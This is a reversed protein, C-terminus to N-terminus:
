RSAFRQKLKSLAAAASKVDASAKRARAQDTYARNLEAVIDVMAARQEASGSELMAAFKATAQPNNTLHSMMVADQARQVNVTQTMAQAVKAKGEPKAQASMKVLGAAATRMTIWDTLAHDRDSESLKRTPKRTASAAAQGSQPMSLPDASAAGAALDPPPTDGAGGGGGGPLSGDGAWSSDNAASAGGGGSHFAGVLKDWGALIFDPIYTRVSLLLKVMAKTNELADDGTKTLAGGYAKMGADVDTLLEKWKTPHLVKGGITKITNINADGEAQLDTAYDKMAKDVAELFPKPGALAPGTLVSFGIVIAAIAGGTHRM